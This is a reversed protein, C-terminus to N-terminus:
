NCNGRGGEGCPQYGTLRGSLYEDLVDGIRGSAGTVVEIGFQNFFEVARAGMGGAIMVNANRDSIYRPVLGPQHGSYYPNEETTVNLVENNGDIEVFVYYPCRGFHHSMRSELGKNEDSSFAIIM